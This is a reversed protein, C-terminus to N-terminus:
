MTPEVEGVVTEVVSVQPPRWPAINATRKADIRRFVCIVPVRMSVASWNLKVILDVLPPEVRALPVDLPVPSPGNVAAASDLEAAIGFVRACDIAAPLVLVM